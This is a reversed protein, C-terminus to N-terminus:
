PTYQEKYEVILGTEPDFVPYGYLLVSGNRMGHEYGRSDFTGEVAEEKTVYEEFTIFEGTDDFSPYIKCDKSFFLSGKYIESEFTHEYLNSQIYGTGDSRIYLCADEYDEEELSMNYLDNASDYSTLRPEISSVEGNQDTLSLSLTDGLKIRGSKIDEVIEKPVVYPVYVAGNTVEYYGDRLLIQSPGSAWQPMDDTYAWAKWGLYHDSSNGFKFEPYNMAARYPGMLASDAMDEGGTEAGDEPNGSDDEEGPNGEPPLGTGEDAGAAARWLVVNDVLSALDDALMYHSRGEGPPGQVVGSILFDSGMYLSGESVIPSGPLCPADGETIEMDFVLNDPLSGEIENGNRDFVSIDRAPGVLIDFTGIYASTGEQNYIGSVSYSWNWEGNDVWEETHVRSGIEGQDYDAVSIHIRELSGSTDQRFKARFGTLYGEPKGNEFNGLYGTVHYSTEGEYIGGKIIRSSAKLLLGEGEVTESLGNGDFLVYQNDFKDSAIRYLERYLSGTTEALAAYGGNVQTSNVEIAFGTSKKTEYAEYVRRLIALEEDTLDVAEDEEGAEVERDGQEDSDGEDKEVSVEWDKEGLFYM